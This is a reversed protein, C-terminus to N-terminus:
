DEAAMRTFDFETIIGVLKNDEDVVPLCGYHNEVLMQAARKLPTDRGVTKVDRKMIDAVFSEEQKMLDIAQDIDDDESSSHTFRMVDRHTILGVLKDGNVVPLHRLKYKDMGRQISFLDDDERLTVINRTM